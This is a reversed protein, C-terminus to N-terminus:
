CENQAERQQAVFDSLWTVMASVREASVESTKNMPDFSGQGASSSTAILNHDKKNSIVFRGLREGLVVSKAEILQSLESDPHGASNKLWQLEAISVQANAVLRCCVLILSNPPLSELSMVDMKEESELLPHGLRCRAIELGKAQLCEAIFLCLASWTHSVASEMMASAMIPSAVPTESHRDLLQLCVKAQSLKQNTRKALIRVDNYQSHM